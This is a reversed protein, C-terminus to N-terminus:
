ASKVRYASFCEVLLRCLSFFRCLTIGFLVHGARFRAICALSHCSMAMALTVSNLLTTSRVARGFRGPLERQLLSCKSLLDSECCFYEESNKPLVKELEIARMCRVVHSPRQYAATMSLRKCACCSEFFPAFSKQFQINVSYIVGVIPLREKEGMECCAICRWVQWRAHRGAPQQQSSMVKVCQSGGCRYIGAQRLCRYRQLLFLIVTLLLRGADGAYSRAQM